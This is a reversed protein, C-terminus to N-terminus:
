WGSGPARAVRGLQDALPRRAASLAAEYLARVRSVYQVTAGNDPVCGCADVAGPGANYAALALPLEGRYVVLLHAIYAIGGRLNQEIDFRDTVNLALATGPMLQMLGAAGAPSVVGSRYCSEVAIISKVLAPDVGRVSALADVLAGVSLAAAPLGTAADTPCRPPKEHPDAPLGRQARQMRRLWSAALMPDYDPGDETLLWAAVHLVAPRSGLAAARCFMALARVPDPEVGLGFELRAALEATAAADGAAARTELPAPPPPPAAASPTVLVAVVAAVLAAGCWSRRGTPGTRRDARGGADTDRVM